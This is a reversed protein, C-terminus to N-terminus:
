PKSQPTQPVVIPKRAMKQFAPNDPPSLQRTAPDWTYPLGYVPDNPIAQGKMIAFAAQIM